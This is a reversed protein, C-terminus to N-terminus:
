HSRSHAGPRKPSQRMELFMHGRHEGSKVVVFKKETMDSLPFLKYLYNRCVSHSWPPLKAPLLVFTVGVINLPMNHFMATKHFQAQLHCIFMDLAQQSSWWQIIHIYVTHIHIYTDYQWIWTCLQLCGWTIFENVKLLPVKLVSWTCNRYNKFSLNVQWSSSHLLTM